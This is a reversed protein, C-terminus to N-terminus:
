VASAGRKASGRKTLAKVLENKEIVRNDKLSQLFPKTDILLVVKYNFTDVNNKLAMVAETLAPRLENTPLTRAQQNNQIYQCQAPRPSSNHPVPGYRGKCLSTGAYHNDEEKKFLNNATMRDISSSSEKMLEGVKRSM